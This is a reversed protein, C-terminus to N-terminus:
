HKKEKKENALMQLIPLPEASKLPADEGVSIAAPAAKAPPYFGPNVQM